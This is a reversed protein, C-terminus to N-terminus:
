RGQVLDDINGTIAVDVLYEGFLAPYGGFDVVREGNYLMPTYVLKLQDAAAKWTREQALKGATSALCSRMGGAGAGAAVAIQTLAKTTDPQRLWVDQSKFVEDLFARTNAAPVCEAVRAAETGKATWPFYRVVAQVRGTDVFTRFFPTLAERYFTRNVGTELSLYVILKSLAKPDGIVKDAATVKMQPLTDYKPPNFQHALYKQMYDSTFEGLGGNLYFQPEPVEKVGAVAHLDDMQQAEKLLFRARSNLHTNDFCNIFADAPVNAEHAVRVISVVTPLFMSNLNSAYHSLFFPLAVHGPLCSLAAAIRAEELTAPLPRFILALRGAEIDKNLFNLTQLANLRRQRCAQDCGLAMYLVGQVTADRSGYVMDQPTAILYGGLYTSRQAHVKPQAAAEGAMLVLAMLVAALTKM